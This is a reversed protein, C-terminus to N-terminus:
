NTLHSFTTKRLNIYQIDQVHFNDPTNKVENLRDPKQKNSSNDPLILKIKM